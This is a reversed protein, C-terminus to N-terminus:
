LMSALLGDRFRRIREANAGIDSLGVRSKSRVDVLTVSSGESIRIVVDDAFGFWPTTDTAEIRGESAVAAHVTWGLEAAVSQAAAFVQDVPERIKITQIDPYADRQQTAIEEGAYSVPNPADKRLPAISVYEPPNTTNTTIDHILPLKSAKSKIGIPVSAAGGALVMGLLALVISGKGSRWRAVLAVLGLVLAGMAGYVIGPYVKFFVMGVDWWGQKYAPGTLALTVAALLGLLFTLKALWQVKM